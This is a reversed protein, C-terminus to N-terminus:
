GGALLLAGAVGSAIILYAPNVHRVLLITLVAAAILLTTLNIVAGKAVTIAGSLALGISVPGLGRQIADLWPWDALREWLRGVAWTLTSAPLLFAILAALAGTWGAVYQGIVGVMLMNPGPALQGLSYIHVFQTETVWHHQSETLQKMEPLVAAGGGVALVSLLGFVGILEALKSV